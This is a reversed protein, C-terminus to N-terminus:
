GARLAARATDPILRGHLTEVRRQPGLTGGALEIGRPVIGRCFHEVINLAQAHNRNDWGIGVAFGSGM